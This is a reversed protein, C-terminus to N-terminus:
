KVAELTVKEDITVPSNVEPAGGAGQFRLTGSVLQTTKLSRTWGTAEDVEATGSQEGRLDYDMKGTGLDIPGAADNPSLTAKISVRAVGDARGNLTYDGDIIVPFGRTVVVRRKWSEGVAVPGEPYLAFLSQLNQKMADEGFQETLAKQVAAKAPGEPLELKRVMEAFMADLGEVSTIKGEPTITTTFGLGLLAAFPRAAQPVQKPPNASDYEIAGAPGKQRFLISDYKTAAKMNGSADVGQVTMSYAVAFTQETLQPKAAGGQSIRQEVTTKLRYVEGQKLRLRLDLKEEASASGCILVVAFAHAIFRLHSM